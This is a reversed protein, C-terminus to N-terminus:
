KKDNHCWQRLIELNAKVIPKRFKPIPIVFDVKTLDKNWLGYYENYKYGLIGQQIPSSTDISRIWSYQRQIFIEYPSSVGLLHVPKTIPGYKKNLVDCVRIRAFMQRQTIPIEKGKCIVLNYPICLTSLENFQLLINFCDIIDDLSNGQVVAACKVGLKSCDGYYKKLFMEINTITKKSDHLFDPLIFESPVLLRVGEMLQENTLPNGLEFASNDLMTFINRDKQRIYFKRYQKNSLLLHALVFSFDTFKSYEGLNPIPIECAFFM